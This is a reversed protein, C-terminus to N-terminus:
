YQSPTKDGNNRAEVLEEQLHKYHSSFDLASAVAWGLVNITDIAEVPTMFHETYKIEHNELDECFCCLRICDLNNSKHIIGSCVGGLNVGIHHSVPYCSRPYPCNKIRNRRMSRKAEKSIADTFKAM